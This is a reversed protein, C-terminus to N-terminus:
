SRGFGSRLAGSIKALGQNQKFGEAFSGGRSASYIALGGVVLLGLSVATARMSFRRGEKEGEQKPRSMENALTGIGYMVMAGGGITKLTNEVERSGGPERLLPITDQRPDAELSKEFYRNAYEQLTGEFGDLRIRLPEHDKATQMAAYTARALKELDKEPPLGNESMRAVPEALVDEVRELMRQWNRENEKPNLESNAPHDQRVTEMLGQVARRLAAGAAGQEGEDAM